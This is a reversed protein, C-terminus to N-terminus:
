AGPRIILVTMMRSFDDRFIEPAVTAAGSRTLEQLADIIEEQTCRCLRSLGAASGRIEALDGSQVVACFLDILIARATPSCVRIRIDSLWAGVNFEVPDCDM